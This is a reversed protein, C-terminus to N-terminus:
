SNDPYYSNVNAATLVRDVTYTGFPKGLATAIAAEIWNWGEQYPEYDIAAVLIGKNTPDRLAARAAADGGNSVGLVDGGRDAAKAANIAGIVPEDGYSVVLVADNPHATLYEAFTSQSASTPDQGQPILMETHSAPIGLSTEAEKFSAQVRANCPPCNPASMGAVYITKGKWPGAMKQRAPGEILQMALKGVQADDVGYNPVTGYNGDIMVIKSKNATIANYVPATMVNAGIVQPNKLAMTQYDSLETTYNFNMDVDEFGVGYFKAAAEMAQHWSEFYANSEGNNIFAFMYHQPLNKPVAFIPKVKYAGTAAAVEAPTWTASSNATAQATSTSAGAAPTSGGSSSSQSSGCAAVTAVATIAAALWVYRVRLRTRTM